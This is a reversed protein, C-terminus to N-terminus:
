STWSRVFALDKGFKEAKELL